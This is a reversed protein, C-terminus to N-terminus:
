AARGVFFVEGNDVLDSVFEEQTGALEVEREVGEFKLKATKRPQLPHAERYEAALTRWLEVIDVYKDKETISPTM